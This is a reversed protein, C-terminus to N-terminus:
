HLCVCGDLLYWSWAVAIVLDSFSLTPGWLQEYYRGFPFNRNQTASSMNRKITADSIMM